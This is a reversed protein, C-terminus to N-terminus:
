GNRVEVCEEHYCSLPEDCAVCERCIWGDDYGVRDVWLGSGAGTDRGCEVCANM